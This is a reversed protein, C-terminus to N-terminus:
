LGSLWNCSFKPPITRPHGGKLITDPSGSKWGLHAGPLFYFYPPHMKISIKVEAVVSGIDVLGISM